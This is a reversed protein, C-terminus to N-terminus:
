ENSIFEAEGDLVNQDIGVKKLKNNLAELASSLNDSKIKEDVLEERFTTFLRMDLTEKMNDFQLGRDFILYLLRFHGLM